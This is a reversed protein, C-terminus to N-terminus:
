GAPCTFCTTVESVPVYERKQVKSPKKKKNKKKTQGNM